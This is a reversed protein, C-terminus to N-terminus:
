KNKYFANVLALVEDADITNHQAEVVKATVRGPASEAIMGNYDQFMMFSFGAMGNGYDESTVATAMTVLRGSSLKMTSIKVCNIKGIAPNIDLTSECAWAGRIDKKATATLKAM